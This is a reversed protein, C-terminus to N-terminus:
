RSAPVFMLNAPDNNRPNGDLHHVAVHEYKPEALNAVFDDSAAKMEAFDREIRKIIELMQGCIASAEKAQNHSLM